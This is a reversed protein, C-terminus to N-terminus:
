VIVGKNKTTKETKWRSRKETKRKELEKKEAIIDSSTLLRHSTISKRGSQPKDTTPLANIDPPLFIAEVESNWNATTEPIVPELLDTDIEGEVIFDGSNLLHFITEPDTIVDVTDQVPEVIVSAQENVPEEVAAPEGVPEVAPTAIM